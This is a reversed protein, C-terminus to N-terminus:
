DCCHACGCVLAVCFLVSRAVFHRYIVPKVSSLWSFGCHHSVFLAGFRSLGRTVLFLSAGWGGWGCWLAPELM